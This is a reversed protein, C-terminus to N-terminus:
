SFYEYVLLIFYCVSASIDLIKGTIDGKNQRKKEIGGQNTFIVIKFGSEHLEKLKTPVQPFM